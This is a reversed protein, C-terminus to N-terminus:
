RSWAAQPGLRSPTSARSLALLIHDHAVRHHRLGRRGLEQHQAVAGVQMEADLIHLSRGAGVLQGRLAIAPMSTTPGASRVSVSSRSFRMLWVMGSLPAETPSPCTEKESVPGPFTAM